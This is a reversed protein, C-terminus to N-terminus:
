INENFLYGREKYNNFVWFSACATSLLVIDDKQAKEKALRMAQPMNDVIIYKNKDFNTKELETVIKDTGQGAFLVLYKVNKNIKQALSSFDAGKDAGGALLVINQSFSNLAIETAEPTTAFSDNYYKIGEKETIFEIRFPLGQFNAVAKEVALRNIKLIDAITCAAAINEKNHEWVLKSKLESKDYQIVKSKPITFKDALKKNIVLYDKTTQFNFLNEKAQWYAKMSPHFNPNNPDAPALHEPFLNTIVAFHPSTHFDELQFSSLELVVFSETNIKDIFSFPALGINGGIYVDKKATKLIDYILSSTTGKGKTGTVGIINKSPCLDIFLKISSHLVVKNRLANQINSCSIPWGPSRFLIDFSEFNQNNSNNTKFNLTLNINQLREKLQFEKRNDFITIQAKLKQKSFYELMAQNEIGLGLIAIKRNNLYNLDIM